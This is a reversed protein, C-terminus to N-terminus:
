FTSSGEDIALEGKLSLEVVFPINPEPLDGVRASSIRPDGIPCRFLELFFRYASWGCLYPISFANSAGAVRTAAGCRIGKESYNFVFAASTVALMKNCQDILANRTRQSWNDDPESKKAQVLVGKSYKQTPTDMTVHILIDAGFRTEEAATGRRHRFVSANLTVGGVRTGHFTTQLSGVLFGTVDDEDYVYKRKFNDVTIKVASEAHKAAAKTVENFTMAAPREVKRLVRKAM